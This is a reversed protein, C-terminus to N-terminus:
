PVLNPAVHQDVGFNHGFFRFGLHRGDATNTDPHTVTQPYVM